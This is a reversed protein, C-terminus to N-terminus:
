GCGFFIHEICTKIGIAALIVGGALEARTGLLTGFRKGGLAGALSIAFTTLGIVAASSIIDEGMASFTVGVILADISTAAAQALLMPFTLERAHPAEQPRKLESISEIIMKGGIFGLVALAAFHDYAAILHSFGSGLFYGAVPMAAQVLGFMFAILVATRRRTLTLGDSLAVAFADMSLGAAILLLEIFSM